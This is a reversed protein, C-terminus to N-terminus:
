DRVAAPDAATLASNEVLYSTLVPSGPREFLVKGQGSPYNQQLASMRQAYDDAGNEVLFAVGKSAPIRDLPLTLSANRVDVADANPVLFHPTDYNLTWDGRGIVYLRYSANISAAYKSLVTFRGAAQSDRVQVEFYDHVNAQLALGLLLALPVAFAYTGMRGALRTVGLWARDLLLAPALMLAPLAVLVHPSFLADTTMVSGLILALWVWSALLFGRASGLRLLIGLAGMALLADTWFDFLPGTRGYQLSTEGRINFAELSHQAQIALVAPLSDVHYGYMEHQLNSPTTLLVGSTRAGFSGSDQAFVVAMPTLFVAAGFALAFLGRAHTSLFGRETATRYVLYAAVVVPALRAAFYVEFCLGIAFGCLVWDVVRRDQVSRVLFYLALLLAVPAQMYHFGTRSFHIHWAAVSMFAAALLAPRPGWLRRALLYLLVVSLLGEFASAVRLGFLNDGFVRMTAAHVAFSLAPVSYWGTAFVARMEGSLISRANNGISAEDGHVNAPISALDPLRLWVAMGLVAILLGFELVCLGRPRWRWSLRDREVLIAGAVVAVLGMAWLWTAGAVAVDMAVLVTAVASYLAGMAMLARGGVRLRGFQARDGDGDAHVSGIYADGLAPALPAAMEPRHSADGDAKEMQSLAPTLPPASLPRARSAMGQDDPLDRELLRVGAFGLLAAALLWLRADDPHPSTALSQGELAAAGALACVGLGTVTARRPRVRAVAGSQSAQARTVDKLAIGLSV